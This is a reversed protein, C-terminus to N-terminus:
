ATSPATPPPTGRDQGPGDDDSCDVLRRAAPLDPALPLVEHTGTVTFLRHIQTTFPGAIAWPRGTAEHAGLAELLTNLLTSDAFGVRSLDLITCRSLSRAAEALANEFPGAGDLDIEGAATILYTEATQTVTVTVSSSSPM